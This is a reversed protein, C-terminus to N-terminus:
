CGASPFSCRRCPGEAWWAGCGGAACGCGGLSMALLIAVTEWGLWYTQEGVRPYPLDSWAYTLGFFVPIAIWRFRKFGPGLMLWLPLITLQVLRLIEATFQGVATGGTAHDVLCFVLAAFHAGVVAVLWGVEAITALRQLSM